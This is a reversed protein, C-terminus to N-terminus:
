YLHADLPHRLVLQIQAKSVALTGHIVHHNTAPVPLCFVAWSTLWFTPIYVCTWLCQHAEPAKARPDIIYPEAELTM